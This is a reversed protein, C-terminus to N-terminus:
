SGRRRQAVRASPRDAKCQKSDLCGFVRSRKSKSRRITSIHLRADCKLDVSAACWFDASMLLRANTDDNASATKVLTRSARTKRRKEPGGTRQTFREVTMVVRRGDLEFARLLRRASWSVASVFSAFIAVTPAGLVTAVRSSATLTPAVWFAALRTTSLSQGDDLTTHALPRVDLRWTTTTAAATLRAVAMVVM